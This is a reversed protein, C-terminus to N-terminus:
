RLALWEVEVLAQAREFGRDGTLLRADLQQALAVAFCDAYGMRLSAKLRAAAVSSSYDAPLVQIPLGAIIALAEPIRARSFRRELNYLVEGLNVASIAIEAEGTRASHLIREM